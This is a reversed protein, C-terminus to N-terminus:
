QHDFARINRWHQLHRLPQRNSPMEWIAHGRSPILLGDCGEEGVGKRRVKRFRHLIFRDIRWRSRNIDEDREVFKPNRRMCIMDGEVVSGAMENRRKYM